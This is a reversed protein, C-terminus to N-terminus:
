QQIHFIVERHRSLFEHFTETGKGSCVCQIGSRSVKVEVEWGRLKVSVMVIRTLKLPM